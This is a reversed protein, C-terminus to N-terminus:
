GGLSEPFFSGFSVSRRYYVFAVEGAAAFENWGAPEGFRLEDFVAQRVDGKGVPRVDANALVERELLQPQRNGLNHSFVM